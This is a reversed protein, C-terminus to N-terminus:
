WSTGSALESGYAELKMFIMKLFVTIVVSKPSSLPSLSYFLNGNFSIKFVSWRLLIEMRNLSLEPPSDEFIFAILKILFTIFFDLFM